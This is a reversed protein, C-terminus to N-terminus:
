RPAPFVQRALFTQVVEVDDLGREPATAASSPLVEVSSTRGGIFFRDRDLDKGPPKM